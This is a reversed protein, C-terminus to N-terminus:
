VALEKGSLWAVVFLDRLVAVTDSDPREKGDIQNLKL